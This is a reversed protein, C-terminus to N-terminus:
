SFKTLMSNQSPIDQPSSRLILLKQGRRQISTKPNDVVSSRYQSTKPRGTNKTEGISGPRGFKDILRKMTSFTLVSNRSSM